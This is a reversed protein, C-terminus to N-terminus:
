LGNIVNDVHGIVQMSLPVVTVRISKVGTGRSLANSTVTQELNFPPYIMRQGVKSTFRVSVVLASAILIDSHSSSIAYSVKPFDRFSTDFVVFYEDAFGAVTSRKM